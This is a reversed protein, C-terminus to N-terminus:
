LDHSGKSDALKQVKEILDSINVGCEDSGIEEAFAPTIIETRGCIVVKHNKRLGKENLIDIVEKQRRMCALVLTGVAIIDAHVEQAKDVFKGAPVDEGLDFCEFGRSALMAMSISKGISHPDGAVIGIIVKAGHKMPNSDPTQSLLIDRAERVAYETATLAPISIKKQSFQGEISEVGPMLGEKIAIDPAVGAALVARAADITAKRNCTGVATALGNVLEKELAM